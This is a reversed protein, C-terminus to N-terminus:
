RSGAKFARYRKAQGVGILALISAVLLLSPILYALVEVATFNEILLGLTIAAGQSLGLVESKALIAILAVAGWTSGFIGLTICMAPRALLAFISFSLIALGGGLTALAYGPEANRFHGALDNDAFIMIGSVVYLLGVVIGIIGATM